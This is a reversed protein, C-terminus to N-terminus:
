VMAFQLQKRPVLRMSVLLSLLCPNGYDYYIMIIRCDIIGLSGPFIPSECSQVKNWPKTEPLRANHIISPVYAGYPNHIGCDLIFMSVDHHNWRKVLWEKFSKATLSRGEKDEKLAKTKPDSNTIYDFWAIMPSLQQIDEWQKQSAAESVGCMGSSWKPALGFLIDNNTPKSHICLFRICMYTCWISYVYTNHIYIGTSILGMPDSGAKELCLIPPMSFLRCFPHACPIQKSVFHYPVIQVKIGWFAIGNQLLWIKVVSGAKGFIPHVGSPGFVISLACFHKECARWKRSLYWKTPM